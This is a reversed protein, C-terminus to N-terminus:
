PSEEEERKLVEEMIDVASEHAEILHLLNKKFREKAAEPNGARYEVRFTEFMFAAAKGLGDELGEYISM